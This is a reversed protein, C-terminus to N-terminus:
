YFYTYTVEFLDYSLFNRKHSWSIVKFLDYYATGVSLGAQFEPHDALDELTNVPLKIKKITLFAILNGTYIATITITLLWYCSLFTRSAPRSPPGPIGSSFRM